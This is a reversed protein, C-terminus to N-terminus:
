CKERCKHYAITCVLICGPTGLGGTGAECASVCGGAVVGCGVECWNFKPDARGGSGGGGGSGGTHWGYPFGSRGPAEGEIEIVEGEEKAKAPYIASITRRYLNIVRRDVQYHGTMYLSAEAAFKPLSM